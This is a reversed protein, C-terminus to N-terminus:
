YVNWSLNQEGCHSKNIIRWPTYQINVYYCVGFLFRWRCILSKRFTQLAIFTLVTLLIQNLINVVLIWKNWNLSFFPESTFVKVKFIPVDPSMGRNRVNCDGNQKRRRMLIDENVRGGVLPTVTVGGDIKKGTASFRLFSVVFFFGELYNYIWGKRENQRLFWLPLVKLLTM